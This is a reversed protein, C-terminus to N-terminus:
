EETQDIDYKEAQELSEMKIKVEEFSIPCYGQADVGVDFSKGHSSLNGHHHGFLHWAGRHSNRWSRMAYHCLVILQEEIKVELLPSYSAFREKWRLAGKADHNGEIFHITGHLKNLYSEADGWSFDGLHYVIDNPAVRQNWYAILRKDHEYLDAWPRRCHRIINTHGFHTDATFWYQKM